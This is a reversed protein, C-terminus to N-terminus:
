HNDQQRRHWQLHSHLGIRSGCTRGCNPCTLGPDPPQPPAPDAHLYKRQRRAIRQQIRKEELLTVGSHCLSRWLPRNAAASELDNPNINCRKLTRKLQDKYRLKPGGPKRNATLLQGYLVQRPLRSGPMRIVHGVWRFQRQALTAEISITDTRQLIDSHPVRDQWTIGLIRQLCRINFADLRRIHRRYVTWAESGYLLTSVCVARYVAVKTSPRLHNNEFVRCRLRGFASSASNIRAQVDDDTQCTSTLTSGLYCFQQAVKLLSGNISFLPPDPPPSRVQMMVETKQTNIALGLSQYVSSMVDLAHQMDSPSHALLACDDAYQLEHINTVTTKTKAQLRRINFLSGDLRYQLQVGSDEKITMHFLLSAASLFLNFIVPALVCGQKVGVKVPFSPSQQGGVLVCAQMGTHFQKLINLFKPPTGFKKLIIWLIERNVTDFAKTLDIFTIYLDKDQERCKEQVQRAAFIMDLTSRNKRFGCQTEPLIDETIHTTLRSLMIKALVKGAVSLLSIGRSNGCSSKDGKKKYITVINSDKWEQPLTENQWTNCIFHFLQRMLLYGGAKLIEAPLGDPGACKNNKLSRIASLVETFKPPEDLALVPPLDPLANLISPDAPNTANLLAHFHEAWRELIQQKDKFLISGDASRVPAINRKLPGYLSKVAEYFAHTNNDDAHRQIEQAKRIWWKNEMIRLKKQTEGRSTKYHSLLLPSRPNSLLAAHAKRKTELLEQIETSSNDFWDQHRKQTFGITKSAAQHITSRLKAWKSEMDLTNSNELNAFGEALKSRYLSLCDPSELARCNFRKSPRQKRHPPRLKMRFNSRILRHDTWCEAGRMARTIRVDNNDQQRTIIYDLLHWHKSRPHMWSTIYKKKLQFTTNTVILQHESCLTLLRLGNSNIKGTGHRGIVKRWLTADTGVRANFDGMLVLKDSDPIRSLAADLSEYFADKTNDDADLTPAYVSLLTAFRGKVLPIRWTMLRESIGQPSEPINDLLKSKIAFGVGHLRREDEPLGKWFFTYGEGVETLSDEGSFRTESLAAIDINYRKLEYAILATRRHPRETGDRRDLLTRVNWCALNMAMPKTKIHMLFVSFLFSDVHFLDYEFLHLLKQGGTIKREILQSAKSKINDFM